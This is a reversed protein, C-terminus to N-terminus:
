EIGPVVEVAGRNWDGRGAREGASPVTLVLGEASRRVCGEVAGAVVGGRSRRRWWGAVERPLAHWHGGRERMRELFEKYIRQRLPNRLYDPHTLLLVMGQFSAVFDAKELWLRPTQEGLVETLTFDQPLTYPLEIFHGISFPWLSMTGGPMPEFPDTDFFSSDYGVKLSQMWEPNRHTLPSRFGVAGWAALHENIKRVRREFRERSSFLRGDHKLGHVGVEFGRRQLDRVLGHDIPYREAVFNFSSRFGLQEELEAVAPVFAQGDATEIDHTLVFAFSRGDPWFHVFRAEAADTLELLRNAAGWLFRAYRDEVPWRLQFEGLDVTGRHARRMRVIVARPLMPKVRYYLRRVTSLRWHGAGFQGEGLTLALLEQLDAARAAVSEPLETAAALAATRWLEPSPESQLRLQWFRAPHNNLYLDTNM